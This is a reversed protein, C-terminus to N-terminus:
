TACCQDSNHHRRMGRSPLSQGYHNRTGFTSTSPPLTTTTTTSTNNYSNYENFYSILFLALNCAPARRDTDTDGTTDTVARATM